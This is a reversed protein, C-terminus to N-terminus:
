IIKVFQHHKPGNNKNNLNYQKRCELTLQKKGKRKQLIVERRGAYVANPSEPPKWCRLLTKLPQM